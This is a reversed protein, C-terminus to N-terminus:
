RPAVSQALEDVQSALYPGFWIADNHGTNDLVTLNFLNPAAEAVTKSQSPPVIDDASGVLVTIPISITPLYSMTDFCDPPGLSLPLWPYWTKVVETLSTFPSRLLVGAPQDVSALRSAVGTGISEGVYIIRDPEFGAEHLFTAAAQADAAFGDESPEGPNGGYGRYELLLVSYGLATIALAVDLRSARNGGNGPMYLVAVNRTHDLPAFLWTSLTLGDATTFEVDRAGPVRDVISGPHAPDPFYIFSRGIM